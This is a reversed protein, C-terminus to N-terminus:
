AALSPVQQEYHLLMQKSVVRTKDGETDDDDDCAMKAGGDDSLPLAGGGALESVAASDM